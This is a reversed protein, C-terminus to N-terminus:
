ASPSDQPADAPSKGRARARALAAAVAPPLPGAGPDPTVQERARLRQAQDAADRDLRQQRLQHRQQAAEAQVASRQQWALEGKGHQFWALLPIRSPCVQACLGCEICDALGLAAARPWQRAQLHFHLQQPLLKSPCVRACEGCRICPMVQDDGAPAAALVLICNGSKGLPVGDNALARGMMPGGLVLRAARESYGGAAAVLDAVPTGLPAVLNVPSRVGPGTVTVIREVLPEGSAVARWCAAATGVNVCAVGVERPWRGAALAHGTLTHVLQREGGQPYRGSVPVIALPQLVAAPLGALASAEQGPDPSLNKGAVSGPVRHDPRPGSTTDTTTAHAPRSGALAGDLTAALAQRADGLDSDVAILVRAAGLVHGLLAAGALVQDPHARLLADDCGIWPECEVANIILTEIRAPVPAPPSTPEPLDCTAAAADGLNPMSPALALKAATPYSAGGLGTVGAEALRSLLENPRRRYWDPWPTLRQWREQGDPELEICPLARGSAHGIDREVIAVVRGSTPAHVPASLEGAARGLCQGKAVQQGIEVCPRAPEGQHQLLPLYLRAPPPLRRLPAAGDAGSDSSDM